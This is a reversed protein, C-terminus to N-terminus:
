RGGWTDEWIYHVACHTCYPSAFSNAREKKIPNRLYSASGALSSGWGNGGHDSVLITDFILLVDLLLLVFAQKKEEELLFIILGRLLLWKRARRWPIHLCFQLEPLQRVGAERMLQEGSSHGSEEQYISLSNTEWSWRHLLPDTPTIQGPHVKEAKWENPPFSFLNIFSDFWLTRFSCLDGKVSNITNTGKGSPTVVIQGRPKWLYCWM